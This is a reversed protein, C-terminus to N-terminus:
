IWRPVRDRYEDYTLRFTSHLLREEFPIGLFNMGFVYATTVTAGRFSGLLVAWGAQMLAGGLYLPNRTRSYVGGTVLYDPTLSVRIETPAARYHSIVAAGIVAAGGVLPLLGLLNLRGPRGHRWGRRPASRSILLPFAVYGAM